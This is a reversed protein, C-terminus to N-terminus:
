KMSADVLRSIGFDTIVPSLMGGIEELLVNDPKIDFHVFQKMHMENIASGFGKLIRLM